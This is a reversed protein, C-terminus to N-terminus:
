FCTGQVDDALQIEFGPQEEADEEIVLAASDSKEEDDAILQGLSATAGEATRVNGLLDPGAADVAADM